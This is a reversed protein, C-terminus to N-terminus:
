GIPTVWSKSTSKTTLAGAKTTFRSTMTATYASNKYASPVAFVLSNYNSNTTTKTQDLLVRNSMQLKLKATTVVRKMQASSSAYFTVSKLYPLGCMNLVCGGGATNPTISVSYSPAAHAPAAAGLVLAIAAGFAALGTRFSSNAM